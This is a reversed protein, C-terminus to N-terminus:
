SDRPEGSIEVAANLGMGAALALPYNTALGMAITMVGAVLCTAALLRIAHTM